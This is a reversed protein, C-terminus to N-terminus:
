WSATAVRRPERRGSSRRVGGLAERRVERGCRGHEPAPQCRLGPRRRVCALARERGDHRRTGVAEEAARPRVGHADAHREPVRAGGRDHGGRAAHEVVLHGRADIVWRDKGTATDVAILKGGELQDLQVLLLDGLLALSSGYGYNLEPVGFSRSWVIKGDFDVAVLDGTAFAAYVAKGDVAMTSAAWGTDDSVRIQKPPLTPRPRSRPGGGCRAPRRTGASSKGAPRMPERSSSGTTGSSPPTRGPCLCRSRGPSTEGRLETGISPLIKNSPSETEVRVRFQPWNALLDPSFVAGAAASRM